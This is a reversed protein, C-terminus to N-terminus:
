FNFFNDLYSTCSVVLVLSNPVASGIVNYWRSIIYTSFPILSLIGLFFINWLCFFRNANKLGQIATVHHKWLTTVVVATTIFSVYQGWNSGLADGLVQNLHFPSWSYTSLAPSIDVYGIPLQSGTNAVGENTPTSMHLYSSPMPPSLELVLVTLIIAFMADSFFTVRELVLHRFHKSAYFATIREAETQKVTGEYDKYTGEAPQLQIQNMPDDRQSNMRYNKWIQSGTIYAFMIVDIKISALIMLVPIAILILLAVLSTTTALVIGLLHLAFLISLNLTIYNIVDQPVQQENMCYRRHRTAYVWMVLLSGAM